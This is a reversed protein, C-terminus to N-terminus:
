RDDIPQNDPDCNRHGAMVCDQIKADRRLRDVLFWCGIALAIFFLLAFLARDPDRGTPKRATM